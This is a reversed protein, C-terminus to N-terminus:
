TSGIVFGPVSLPLAVTQLPFLLPEITTEEGCPPAPVYSYEISLPVVHDFADKNEANVPNLNESILFSTQPSSSYM